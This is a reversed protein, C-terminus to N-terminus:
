YGLFTQKDIEVRTNPSTEYGLDAVRLGARSAVTFWYQNDHHRLTAAAPDARAEAISLVDGDKEYYMGYYADLAAVTNSPRSAPKTPLIARAHM